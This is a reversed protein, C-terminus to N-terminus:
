LADVTVKQIKQGVTIAEKKVARIGDSVMKPHEFLMYRGGFYLVTVVTITLLPRRFLNRVFFFIFSGILAKLAFNKADM